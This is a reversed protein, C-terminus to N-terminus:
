FQFIQEIYLFFILTTPLFGYLFISSTFLMVTQKFLELTKEGFIRHAIANPHPDGAMAWLSTTNKIKQLEPLVEIYEYNHKQSLARLKDHIFLYKYDDLRNLEPMMMLYLKIDKKNAYDSLRKLAIEMEQYGAYNEDYIGKYHEFLSSEGGENFLRNKLIWFTVALESNRIFFNGGGKPIIEADNPYYNVIIDTPALQFNKTLFLEVYRKTNYNGIGQNM